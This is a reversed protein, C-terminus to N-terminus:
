KVKFTAEFRIKHGVKLGKIFKVEWGKPMDALISFAAKTGSHTRGCSIYKFGDDSGKDSVVLDAKFRKRKM